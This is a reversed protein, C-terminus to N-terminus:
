ELTGSNALEFESMSFVFLEMVNEFKPGLSEGLNLFFHNAIPRGRRFVKGRQM